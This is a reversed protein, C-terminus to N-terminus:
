KPRKKKAIVHEATVVVAGHKKAVKTVAAKYAEYQKQTLKKHGKLELVLRHTEGLEPAFMGM